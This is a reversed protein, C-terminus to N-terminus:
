YSVGKKEIKVDPYSMQLFSKYSKLTILKNTVSYFAVTACFLKENLCVYM